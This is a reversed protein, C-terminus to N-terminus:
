IKVKKFLSGLYRHSSIKSFKHLTWEFPRNYDRNYGRNNYGMLVSLNTHMFINSDVITAFKVFNLLLYVIVIKYMTTKVSAISVSM